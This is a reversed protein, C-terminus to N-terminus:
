PSWCSFDRRLPVENNEKAIETQTAKLWRIPWAFSQSFRLAVPDCIQLAVAIYIYICVSISICVTCVQM